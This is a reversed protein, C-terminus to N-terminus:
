PADGALVFKDGAIAFPFAGRDILGRLARVVRFRRQDRVGKRVDIRGVCHRVFDEHSITDQVFSLTRAEALIMDQVAHPVISTERLMLSDSPRM